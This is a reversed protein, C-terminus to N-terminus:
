YPSRYKDGRWPEPSGRWSRPRSPFYSEHRPWGSHQPARPEKHLKRHSNRWGYPYDPRYRDTSTVLRGFRPESPFESKIRKPSTRRKPVGPFSWEFSRKKGGSGKEAAAIAEKLVVHVQIIKGQLENRNKSTQKPLNSEIYSILNEGTDRLFRAALTATPSETRQKKFESRANEFLDWLRGFKPDTDPDYDSRPLSVNSSSGLIFFDESKSASTPHPQNSLLPSLFLSEEKIWKDDEPIGKSQKDRLQNHKTQNMGPSVSTTQIQRLPTQVNDLSETALLM